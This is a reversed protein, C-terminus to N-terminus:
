PRGGAPESAPATGPAKTPVVVPDTAAVRVDRAPIPPSTRPIRPPSQPRARHATLAPESGSLARAALRLSTRSRSTVGAYRVPASGPFDARSWCETPAFQGNERWRTASSRACNSRGTIVNGAMEGASRFQGKKCLIQAIVDHALVRDTRLLRSASPAGLALRNDAGSRWPGPGIRFDNPPRRRSVRAPAVVIAATAMVTMATMPRRTTSRRVSRLTTLGQSPAARRASRQSRCRPSCGRTRSYGMYNSSAIGRRFSRSTSRSRCGQGHSPTSTYVTASEEFSLRGVAQFFGSIAQEPLAPVVVAASRALYWRRPVSRSDRFPTNRSM